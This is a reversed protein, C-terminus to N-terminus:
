LQSNIKQQLWLYRMNAPRENTKRPANTHSGSVQNDSENYRLAHKTHSDFLNGVKNIAKM